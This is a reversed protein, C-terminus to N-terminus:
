PPALTKRRATLLPRLSELWLDAAADLGGNSFHIGDHRFAAGLRDLDPGPAAGPLHAAAAQAVRIQENAAPAESFTARAPLFVASPASQRVTRHLSSLTELYATGSSDAARGESEGQQWLVYDPPLGAAHLQNLTDVLRQHCRGGAAWDAVFTSGEAVVAFVVTDIEGGTLLRAALRTWISGGYGDGGPLPDIARYLQGRAFAYVNAGAARRTEGYNAANSQGACLVVLRRAASTRAIDSLPVTAPQPRSRLEDRV